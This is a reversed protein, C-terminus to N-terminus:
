SWNAHSLLVDVAAFMSAEEYRVDHIFDDLKGRGTGTASSRPSAATKVRKKAAGSAGPESSGKRKDSRQMQEDGSEHKLKVLLSGNRQELDYIRDLLKSQAAESNVYAQKWFAVSDFYKDSAIM